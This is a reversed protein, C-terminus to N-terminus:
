GFAAVWATNYSERAGGLLSLCPTNKKAFLCLSDSLFNSWLRKILSAVRRYSVLECRTVLTDEFRVSGFPTVASSLVQCTM